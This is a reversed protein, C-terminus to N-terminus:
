KSLRKHLAINVENICDKVRDIFEEQTVELKNGFQYAFWLLINLEKNYSELNMISTQTSIQPVKICEDVILQKVIGTFIEYDKNFDIPCNVLKYFSNVQEPYKKELYKAITVKDDLNKTEFLSGKFEKTSWTQLITSLKYKGLLVEVYEDTPQVQLEKDSKIKLKRKMADNIHEIIDHDVGGYYGTDYKGYRGARGCIQKTLMHSVPEVGKGNYKTHTTFVVTEIPLNLGMGIADTTILVDTEGNIFQEAQMKRVEYGLAGYIVSSKIHKPLEERVKFIDKRSFVVIATGKKVKNLDVPKGIPHIMTKRKFEHVEIEEGLYNAIFQLRDKYETPATLVVKDANAGILAQVFFSGRDEDDIMQVEDIVVTEYEKEFNFCEVTSSQCVADDFFIKEEGTILDTTIGQKNLYEYTELALLRLPALYASSFSNAIESMAHFTKGSNTEGLYAIIKRKKNRARFFIEQYDNFEEFLTTEQQLALVDLKTIVATKTKGLKVKGYTETSANDLITQRDVIPYLAHLEDIFTKVERELDYFRSTINQILHETSKGSRIKAFLTFKTGEVTIRKYVSDDIFEIDQNEFAEKFRPTMQKRMSKRM